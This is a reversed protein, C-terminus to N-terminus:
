VLVFYTAFKNESDMCLWLEEPTNLNEAKDDVSVKEDSFGKAFRMVGDCPYWQNGFGSHVFISQLECGIGEQKVLNQTQEPFIFQM